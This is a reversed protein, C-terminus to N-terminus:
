RGVSWRARFAWLKVISTMRITALRRGRPVKFATISTLLQGRVRRGPMTRRLPTSQTGPPLPRGREDYGRFRAWQIPFPDRGRNMIRLQAAVFRANSGPSTSLSRYPDVVHEFSVQADVRRRRGGFPYDGQLRVANSLKRPAAATSGSPSDDGGCGLVM